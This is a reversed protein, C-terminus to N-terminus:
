FGQSDSSNQSISSDITSLDTNDVDRLVTDLDAASDVKYSTEVVVPASARPLLDTKQSALYVVAILAVVIVLIVMLQINGINNKRM